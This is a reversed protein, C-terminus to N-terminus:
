VTLSYEAYNDPAEPVEIIMALVKIIM